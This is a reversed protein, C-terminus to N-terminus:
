LTVLPILPTVKAAPCDAVICTTNAGLAVPVKVPVTFTTLLAVFVGGDTATLPVPMLLVLWETASLQVALVDEPTLPYL